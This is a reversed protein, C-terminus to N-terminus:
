MNIGGVPDNGDVFKKEHKLIARRLNFFFTFISLNFVSQDM